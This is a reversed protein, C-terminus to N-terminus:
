CFKKNEDGFSYTRQMISQMESFLQFYGGPLTYDYFLRNQWIYGKQDLFVGEETENDVLPFFFNSQISFNSVSAIPVFKVSPALSTIGSRASGSEGDFQFVELAGRGGIANSRMEVIGGINWRKNKGIGTYVEITSTFFNNRPIDGTSFTSETETYLNNFWKIDWRGKAMLKSPTFQQINSTGRQNDQAVSYTSLSLGIIIAIYINKIKM